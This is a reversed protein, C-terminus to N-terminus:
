PKSLLKALPSAAPLGWGRRAERNFAMLRQANQTVLVSAGTETLIAICPGTMGAVTTILLLGKLGPGIVVNQRINAVTARALRITEAVDTVRNRLLVAKATEPEVETGSSMEVGVNSTALAPADDIGEGVTLVRGRKAMDRIAVKDATMLEARHDIGLTQSIAVATRANDGTLMVAAVDLSKLRQM